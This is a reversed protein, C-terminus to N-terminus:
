DQNCRVTQAKSRQKVKAHAVPAAKSVTLLKLVERVGHFAQSCIDSFLHADFPARMYPTM